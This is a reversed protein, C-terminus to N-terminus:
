SPGNKFVKCWIFTLAASYKYNVKNFSKYFVSWISWIICKIVVYTPIWKSWRSWLIEVRRNQKIVPLKLLQHNPFANTKKWWPKNVKVQTKLFQKLLWMKWFLSQRIPNRTVMSRWWHCKSLTWLFGGLIKCIMHYSRYTIAM